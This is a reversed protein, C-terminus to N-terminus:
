RQAPVPALMCLSKQYSRTRVLCFIGRQGRAQKGRENLDSGLIIRKFMYVTLFHPALVNEALDNSESIHMYALINGIM